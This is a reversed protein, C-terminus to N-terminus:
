LSQKLRLWIVQWLFFHGVPVAEEAEGGRGADGSNRGGRRM